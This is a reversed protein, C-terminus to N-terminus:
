EVAGTMVVKKKFQQRLVYLLDSGVSSCKEEGRMINLVKKRFGSFISM